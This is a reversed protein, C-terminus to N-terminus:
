KGSARARSSSQERIWRHSGDTMRTQWILHHQEENRGMPIILVARGSMILM